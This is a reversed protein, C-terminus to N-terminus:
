GITLKTLAFVDGSINLSENASNNDHSELLPKVSDRSWVIQVGQPPGPIRPTKDVTDLKFEQRYQKYTMVAKLMRSFLSLLLDRHERPSERYFKFTFGFMNMKNSPNRLMVYDQIGEEKPLLDFVKGLHCMFFNKVHKNPYTVKTFEDEPILFMGIHVSACVGSHMLTFGDNCELTECNGSTGDISSMMLPCRVRKWPGHQPPVSKKDVHNYQIDVTSGSMVRARNGSLAVSISLPAVSAKQFQTEQHTSTKLRIHGEDHLHCLACYKNKFLEGGVTVYSYFSECKRSWSSNNLLERSNPRSKESPCHETIPTDGSHLCIAEFNGWNIFGRESKGYRPKVEADISKVLDDLSRPTTLSTVSFYTLWRVARSNDPDDSYRRFVEMTQYVVGTTNETVPAQQLIELFKEKSFIERSENESPKNFGLNSSPMSTTNSVTGTVTFARNLCKVRGLTIQKQFLQQGEADELPCEVQFDECCNGSLVCKRDCACPLFTMVGCFDRCSDMAPRSKVPSWSVTSGLLFALLFSRPLRSTIM